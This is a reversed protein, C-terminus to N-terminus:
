HLRRASGLGARPLPRRRQLAPAHPLLLRVPPPRHARPPRRAPLPRAPPPRPRRAPSTASTPAPATPITRAPPVTTPIPSLSRVACRRRRGQLLHAPRRRPLGQPRRRGAEGRGRRPQQRACVHGHTLAPITETYWTTVEITDYEPSQWGYLTATLVKGEM